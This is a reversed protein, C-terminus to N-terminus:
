RKLGDNIKKAAEFHKRLIPLAKAAFTSVNPDRSKAADEMAKVDEEHDMVMLRMYKEDFEAGRLTTLENVHKEQEENLANPLEIDRSVALTKIERNMRNHDKVMMRGFNRVGLSKSNQEAMEGLQVEMLGGSSAKVLFDFIDDNVIGTDVNASEANNKSRSDTNCAQLACIAMLLTFLLAKMKMIQRPTKLSVTKLVAQFPALNSEFNSIRSCFFTKQNYYFEM